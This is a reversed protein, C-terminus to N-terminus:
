EAQPDAGPSGVCSSSLCIGAENRKLGLAQRGWVAQPYAVPNRM